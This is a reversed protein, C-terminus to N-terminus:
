NINLSETYDYFSKRQIYIFHRKANRNHMEYEFCKGSLTGKSLKDKRFPHKYSRSQEHLKAPYLM